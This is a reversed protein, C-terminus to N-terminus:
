VSEEKDQVKRTRQTSMVDQALASLEHPDIENEQRFLVEDWIEIGYIGCSVIVSEHIGAYEVLLRPLLIRNHNDLKVYAANGVMLRVFRRAKADYRDVQKMDTVIKDWEYPTYLVLHKDLGRNLVLRGDVGEPLQRCLAAPLALRGKDDLKCPYNGLIDLM